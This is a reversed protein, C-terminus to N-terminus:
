MKLLFMARCNLQLSTKLEAAIHRRTDLLPPRERWSVRRLYWSPGPAFALKMQRWTEQFDKDKVVALSLDKDKNKDQESRKPKPAPSTARFRYYKPM